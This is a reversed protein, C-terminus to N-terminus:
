VAATAAAVVEAAGMRTGSESKRTYRRAGIAFSGRGLDCSTAAVGHGRSWRGPSPPLVGVSKEDGPQSAARLASAALWVSLTKRM